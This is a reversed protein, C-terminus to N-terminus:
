KKDYVNKGTCGDPLQIGLLNCITPAIDTINVSQGDVGAKVQPGM